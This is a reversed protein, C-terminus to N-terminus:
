FASELNINFFFRKGDLGRGRGKEGEKKGGRKKEKGRRKKGEKKEEGRKQGGRAGGQFLAPPAIGGRAGGTGHDRSSLM